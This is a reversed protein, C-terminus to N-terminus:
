GQLLDRLAHPEAIRLDSVNFLFLVSEISVVALGFHVGGFDARDVFPPLHLAPKERLPRHGTTPLQGRCELSIMEKCPLSKASFCGTKLRCESAKHSPM